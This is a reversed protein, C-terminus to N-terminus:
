LMEVLLDFDWNCELLNNRECVADDLSNFTGFYERKKGIDKYVYYHGSHHKGIYKFLENTNYLRKSEVNWDNWVCYDRFEIAEKLTKFTGFHKSKGNVSKSVFFTGYNTLHIYDEGTKTEVKRDFEGDSILKDRVNIAESLTKYTGFHKCKGNLRKVIHYTNSPTKKIYETGKVNIMIWIM